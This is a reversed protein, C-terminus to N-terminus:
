LRKSKMKHSRNTWFYACVICNRFANKIGIDADAKFFCGCFMFYTDLYQYTLSTDILFLSKLWIKACQTCYCCCFCCSIDSLWWIHNNKCPDIGFLFLVILEFQLQFFCVFLCVFCVESKIPLKNWNPACLESTDLM